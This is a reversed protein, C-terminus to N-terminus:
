LLKSFKDYIHAEGVSMAFVVLTHWIKVGIGGVFFIPLHTSCIPGGQGKLTLPGHLTFHVQAKTKIVIAEWSPM